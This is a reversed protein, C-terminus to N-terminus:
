AGGTLDLRLSIVGARTEPDDVFGMSRYLALAEQLRDLTELAMSSHGADRAAAVSAEALRRGLGRRRWPPRVYLRKMECRGDALPWMGVGGAVAAGDRALLLKGLPPAYSGPLHRLEEDFDRFCIDENLWEQYEAFLARIHEMDEATAADDIALPGNTAQPTM